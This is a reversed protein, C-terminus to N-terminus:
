ANSLVGNFKVYGSTCEFKEHLSFYVMSASTHTPMHINVIIRIGYLFQRFSM